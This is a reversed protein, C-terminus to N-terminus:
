VFLEIKDDKIPNDIVRYEGQEIAKLIHIYNHVMSHYPQVPKDCWGIATEAMLIGNCIAISKIYKYEGYAEIDEGLWKLDTFCKDEGLLKKLYPHWENRMITSIAEEHLRIETLVEKVTKM